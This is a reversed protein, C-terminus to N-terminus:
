PFCDEILSFTTGSGRWRVGPLPPGGLGRGPAVGASDRHDPRDRLENAHTIGLRRLALTNMTCVNPVVPAWAQIFVPHDPAARDLVSRDPLEGEALDRYSRRIFYHPEGVPTAMIWEGAPVQSARFAIRNVIDAHSRADGLDVLPEALTSFHLLHPHTDILGPIVTSGALDVVHSESGASARVADSTGVALM